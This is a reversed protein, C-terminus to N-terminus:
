PSMEKGISKLEALASDIRAAVEEFSKGASDGGHVREDLAGFCEMLSDVSQKIRQQDAESLSEKAALVPSDELLHGIEHVPGDAEDLKGAAFATKIKTRLEDVKTLTEAFMQPHAHEHEDGHSAHEHDHQKSQPNSAATQADGCGVVSVCTIAVL